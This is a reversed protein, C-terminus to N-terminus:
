QSTMPVLRAATWEVFLWTYFLNNTSPVLRITIPWCIRGINWMCQKQTRDDFILRTYAFSCRINNWNSRLCVSKNACSTMEIKSNECTFCTCVPWVDTQSRSRVFAKRTRERRSTLDLTLWTECDGHKHTEWRKCLYVLTWQDRKEVRRVVVDIMSHRVWCVINERNCMDFRMWEIM